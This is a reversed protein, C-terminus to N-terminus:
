EEGTRKFPKKFFYLQLQVIVAGRSCIPSMLCVHVRKGRTVRVRCLVALAQEASRLLCVIEISVCCFLVFYLLGHGHSEGGNEVRAEAVALPGKEHSQPRVTLSPLQGRTCYSFATDKIHHASNMATFSHHICCVEDHNWADGATWTGPM